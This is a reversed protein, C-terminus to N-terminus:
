LVRQYCTRSINCLHREVVENDPGMQAQTRSCWCYGDGHQEFDAAPDMEGTVYMGKSRLYACAPQGIVDLEPDFDRKFPM